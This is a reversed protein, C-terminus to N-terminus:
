DGSEPTTLKSADLDGAADVLARTGAAQIRLTVTFSGIDIAGVTHNVLQCTVTNASVVHADLVLDEVDVSAAVMVFDGLAAGAVTVDKTEEAGAAISSSAWTASGALTAMGTRLIELDLIVLNHQEYLTRMADKATAATTTFLSWMRKVIVNTGAM